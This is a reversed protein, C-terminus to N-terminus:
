PVAALWTVALVGAGLALLSWGAQLAASDRRRAYAAVAGALLLLAAGAGPLLVRRDGGLALGIVLALLVAALYGGWAAALAGTRGLRQASGRVGHAADGELDPLANAVQLAAGLLLGVPWVWLLAPSFRDLATWVWLPVLPLAVAYTLGSAASRKLRLDYALGIGMGATSLAWAVPGFTAGLLLTAGIAGAALWRAVRLPVAGSPIPKWPKTAADLTRDAIDNVVGIASQAAVMTLALRLLVSASPPGSPRAALLALGM